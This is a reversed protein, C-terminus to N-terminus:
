LMSPLQLLWVVFWQPADRISALIPLIRTGPKQTGACQWDDEKVAVQGYCHWGPIALLAMTIYISTTQSAEGAEVLTVPHGVQPHCCSPFRRFPLLRDLSSQTCCYWFLHDGISISRHAVVQSHFTLQYFFLFHLAQRGHTLLSQLKVLWGSEQGKAEQFAGHARLWGTVADSLRPLSISRRGAARVKRNHVSDPLVRTSHSVSGISMWPAARGPATTSSILESILERVDRTQQIKWPVSEEKEASGCKPKLICARCGLCSLPVTHGLFIQSDSFLGLHM